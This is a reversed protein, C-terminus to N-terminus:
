EWPSPQPFRQQLYEKMGLSLGDNNFNLYTFGPILAKQITNCSLNSKIRATYGTPEKPPTGWMTDSFNFYIHTVLGNGRAWPLSCMTQIYNLKNVAYPIHSQFVWEPAKNLHCYHISDLVRRHWSNAGAKMRYEAMQCPNQLLPVLVEEETVPRLFLQDDSNVIFSDSLDPLTCALILKNIINADKCYKYPDPCPVHIVNKAWKPKHGILYVNKVWSQYAWISRLSYRLEFDDRDKSMNSLPYVVDM